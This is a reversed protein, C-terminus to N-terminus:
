GENGEREKSSRSFLSSVSSGSSKLSRDWHGDDDDDAEGGGRGEVRATGTGTGMGTGEVEVLLELEVVVDVGDPGAFLDSNMM